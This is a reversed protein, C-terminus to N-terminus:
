YNRRRKRQNGREGAAIRRRCMACTVYALRQCDNKSTADFMGRVKGWKDVVVAYDQHTKRGLYLNM